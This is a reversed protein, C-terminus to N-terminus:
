HSPIPLSCLVYQLLLAHRGRLNVLNVQGLRAFLLLSSSRWPQLCGSWTRSCCPVLQPVPGAVPVQAFIRYIPRNHKSAFRIVDYVTKFPDQSHPQFLVLANYQINFPTPWRKPPGSGTCAVFPSGMTPRSMSYCLIHM